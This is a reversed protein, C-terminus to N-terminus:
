PTITNSENKNEIQDFPIGKTYGLEQIASKIVPECLYDPCPFGKDMMTLNSCNKTGNSNTTGCDKCNSDVPKLFYALIKLYPFSNNPTFLYGDEIFAYLTKNHKIKSKVEIQYPTTLSFSQSGDLSAISKYLFGSSTELFGPLKDRSRFIKCNIPFKVPCTIADVEIMEVCYTSWINSLAYVSRKADAERKIILSAASYLVNYIHKNTMITDIRQEKLSNRVRSIIERNTMKKVITISGTTNM